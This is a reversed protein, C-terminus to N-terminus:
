EDDDMVEGSKFRKVYARLAIRVVATMSIDKEKAIESASNWLSRKVWINAKVRDVGGSSPPLDPSTDPCEVDDSM